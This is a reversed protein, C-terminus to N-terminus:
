LVVKSEPKPNPGEANAVLLSVGLAGVGLLGGLCLAVLWWFQILLATLRPTRAGLILGILVAILSPVGLVMVIGIATWVGGVQTNFPGWVIHVNFFRAVM